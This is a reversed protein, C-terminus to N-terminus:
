YIAHLVYSILSYFGPKSKQKM